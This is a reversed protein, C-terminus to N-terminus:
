PKWQLGVHPTYAITLYGNLGVETLDNVFQDIGDWIVTGPEPEVDSWNVDGRVTEMGWQKVKLLLEKRALHANVGIHGNHNM